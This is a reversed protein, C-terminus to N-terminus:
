NTGYYSEWIKLAEVQELIVETSIFEERSNVEYFKLGENSLHYSFFEGELMSPKLKPMYKEKAEKSDLTKVEQQQEQEVKGDKNVVQAKEKKTSKNEKKGGKLVTNIEKESVDEGLVEMLEKVEKATAANKSKAM